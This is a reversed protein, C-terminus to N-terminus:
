NLPPHSAPVAAPAQRLDRDITETRGGVSRQSPAFSANETALPEDMGDAKSSCSACINPNRSLANGAEPM